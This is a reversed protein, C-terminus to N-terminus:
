REFGMKELFAGWRPDGHLPRFRPSPMMETLGSDRQAHARELWEFAADAEGRTGHVEAIQYAADEAYKEIVERLAEDSDARRDMGHYLIALAWLRYAEHSERMAEELAEESRGQAHLALSLLARVSVRQPALELARRYKEEAELRLTVINPHNLSAVTRAEREFRALRDPSSAVEAPLVKVAVERGLRLDKARHVEGMGGAGLPGVIEYTGLRTGPSLPM